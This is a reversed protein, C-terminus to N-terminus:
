PNYRDSTVGPNKARTIVKEGQAPLGNRFLKGILLAKSKILYKIYTVGEM